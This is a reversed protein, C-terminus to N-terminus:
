DEPAPVPCPETRWIEKAYENITRDSSFFGSGATSMISMRTWRTTDKYTEDVREQVLIPSILPSLLRAASRKNFLLKCCCMSSLPKCDQINSVTFAPM